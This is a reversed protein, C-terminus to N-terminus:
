QGTPKWTYATKWQQCEALTAEFVRQQDDADSDRWATEVLHEQALMRCGGAELEGPSPVHMSSDPSPYSACGLLPLVIFVALAAKM